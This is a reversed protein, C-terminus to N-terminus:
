SWRRKGSREKKRKAGINEKVLSKEAWIAKGGARQIQTRKPRM